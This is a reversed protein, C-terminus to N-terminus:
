NQVKVRLGTGPGSQLVHLGTGPGKQIVRVGTVSSAGNGSVAVDAGVGGSSIIEAGVGGGSNSIDLGVAADRNKNEDNMVLEQRKNTYATDLATTTITIAGTGLAGVLIAPLLPGRRKSDSPSCQNFTPLGSPLTAKMMVLMRGPTQAPKEGAETTM